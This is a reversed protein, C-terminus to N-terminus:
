IKQYRQVSRFFPHFSFNSVSIKEEETNSENQCQWKRVPLHLTYVFFKWRWVIFLFLSQFTSYLYSNFVDGTSTALMNLIREWKQNWHCSNFLYFFSVFFRTFIVVFSLFITPMKEVRANKRQETENSTAIFSVSFFVSLFSLLCTSILQDHFHCDSFQASYVHSKEREREWKKGRM